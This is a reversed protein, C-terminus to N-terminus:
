RAPSRVIRSVTPESPEPEPLAAPPPRHALLRAALEDPTEVVAIPAREIAPPQPLEPPGAPRRQATRRAPLVVRRRGSMGFGMM